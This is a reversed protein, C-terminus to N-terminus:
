PLRGLVLLKEALPTIPGGTGDHGAVEKSRIPLTDHLPQVRLIPHMRVNGPEGASLEIVALQLISRSHFLLSGAGPGLM